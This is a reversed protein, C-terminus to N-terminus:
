KRSIAFLHTSLGLISEEKELLRVIKLINERKEENEWAEDLNPILWCPGIVGRLDNSVFGGERLESRLIDPHHFYSRGLGSYRSAPNKIHHGTKVETDIMNRFPEEDLLENRDYHTIGLPHHCLLHHSRHFSPIRSELASPM